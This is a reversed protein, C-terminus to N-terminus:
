IGEELRRALRRFEHALDFVEGALKAIEAPTMNLRFRDLALGVNGHAFNVDGLTTDTSAALTTETSDSPWEAEVQKRLWERAGQVRTEVRGIQFDLYEVAAAAWVLSWWPEESAAIAVQAGHAALARDTDTM